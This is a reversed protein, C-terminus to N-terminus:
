NTSLCHLLVPESRCWCRGDCGGWCRGDHVAFYRAICVRIDFLRKLGHLLLLGLLGGAVGLEDNDIQGRTYGDKADGQVVCDNSGGNGADSVFELGEVVHAPVTGGVEEGGACELEEEAFEIGVEVDLPNKEGGEGQELKPGQNAAGCRTRHRKDDPSGNSSEARSANERPCLNDASIRYRKLFPSNVRAKNTASIANRADNSRKQTSRESFM